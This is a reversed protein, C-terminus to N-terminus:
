FLAVDRMAGLPDAGGWVHSIAAIARKLLAGDKCAHWMLALSILMATFALTVLAYELSAQGAQDRVRRSAAEWLRYAM